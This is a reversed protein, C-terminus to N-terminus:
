RNIIFLGTDSLSKSEEAKTKLREDCWCESIPKMKLKWKITEYYVVCYVCLVNYHNITKRFKLLEDQTFCGHGTGSGSSRTRRVSWLFPRDLDSVPLSIGRLCPNSSASICFSCVVEGSCTVSSSSRRLVNQQSSRVLFCEPPQSSSWGLHRKQTLPYLNLVKTVWHWMVDLMLPLPLCLRTVSTQLM